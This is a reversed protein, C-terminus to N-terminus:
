GRSDPPQSSGAGYERSVPAWAASMKGLGGQLKGEYRFTADGHLLRAGWALPAFLLVTALGRLFFYGYMHRGQWHAHLRAYNQGARYKRERLYARTMRHAPVGEHAVADDAWVFKAGRHLCRWFFDSDESGSQAFASDFGGVDFFLQRRFLVNGTACESWHLLSGTPHRPREYFGTRTLWQPPVTEFSALVPGFAGDAQTAVLCRWLENLWTPEPWEDDDIYAIWSGRAEEVCRSRAYGVGPRAEVVYRVPWPWNRSEAEFTARGSGAGDNDVVLLEVACGEPVAIARLRELLRVLGDPRKFTCVCISILPPETM